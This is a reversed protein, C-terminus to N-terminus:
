HERLSGQINGKDFQDFLANVEEINVEYDFERPNITIEGLMNCGGGIDEALNADLCLSKPMHIKGKAKNNINTLGENAWNALELDDKFDFKEIGFNKKAFEVAEDMTQAPKFEIFEALPKLKSYDLRKKVLVGISIALITGLVGFILKKNTKPKKTSLEVVDQELGSNFNPMDYSAPNMLIGPNKNVYVQNAQSLNAAQM